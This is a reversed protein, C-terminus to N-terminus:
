KRSITPVSGLVPLELYKQVDDPTKITNDLYELLFVLVLGVMVGLVAAIAINLLINPQVPEEPIRATDIVQVNDIKMKKVVEAMFIEGVKNAIIAARAPDSDKVSIRIIETDKEGSITIKENLEIPSMGLKLQDIVQELVTNSKAIISYTDVLKRNLDIDSYTLPQDQEAPKNVILLTYTEYQKELVFSSIAWSTVVAILTILIILWIRKRIIFIIERLDIVDEEM